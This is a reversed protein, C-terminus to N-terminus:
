LPPFASSGVQKTIDVINDAEAKAHAAKMLKEATQMDGQRREFNAM